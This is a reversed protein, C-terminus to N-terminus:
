ARARGAGCPQRTLLREPVVPRRRGRIASVTSVAVSERYTSDRSLNVCGVLAPPGDPPFVRDGLVLTARPTDM